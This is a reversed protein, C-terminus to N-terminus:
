QDSESDSLEYGDVHRKAYCDQAWHTDRGCRHCNLYKNLHENLNVYAAAAEMIAKQVMSSPKREKPPPAYAERQKVTKVTKASITQGDVNKKAYCSAAEHGDRGCRQCEAIM